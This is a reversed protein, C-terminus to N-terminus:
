MPTSITICLEQFLDAKSVCLLNLTKNALYISVQFPFPLPPSVAGKAGGGGLDVGTVQGHFAVDHM